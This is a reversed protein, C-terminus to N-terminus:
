KQYRRMVVSVRALLEAIRFPKTIYDDAGMNLCKVKEDFDLRASLMIVPVPYKGYLRRLVEIGDIKPMMIDLLVLDPLHLNVSRIAEEGDPASLIDYGEDKFCERLLDVMEPDDDVVLISSTTM